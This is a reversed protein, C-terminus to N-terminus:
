AHLLEESVKKPRPNSERRRWWHMSNSGEDPGSSPEQGSVDIDLLALTQLKSEAQFYPKGIDPTVPVLRIRGVLKRLILASKGARRELVEQITTVREKIWEVPPAKFIRDKTATLCDLDAALEEVKQETRELAKGIADSSRGEAIFSVFNELQRQEKALEIGKLRITEPVESHRKKIEEEVRKLLYALNDTNALKQNL